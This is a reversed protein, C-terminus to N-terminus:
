DQGASRARLFRVTQFVVGLVFFVCLLWVNAHPNLDLTQVILMAGAFSSVFILAWDFVMFLIIAGIIGGLIYPVWFLTDWELGTFKFLNITIYAGGGFGALVIAIKQFVVALVAGIIGTIASLVILVAPSKVDWLLPAYQLGVAFGICGVFLWFFNRGILLLVAGIIINIVIISVGDSEM